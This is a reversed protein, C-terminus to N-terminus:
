NVASAIDEVIRECLHQPIASLAAALPKSILLPQPGARCM